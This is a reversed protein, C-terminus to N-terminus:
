SYEITFTISSGDLLGNQSVFYFAEPDEPPFITIVTDILVNFENAPDKRLISLDEGLSSPTFSDPFFSNNFQTLSINSTSSGGKIQWNTYGRSIPFFSSPLMISRPSIPGNLTIQAEPPLPIPPAAPTPSPPMNPTVSPTITPTISPTVSPTIQAGELTKSASEFNEYPTINLASASPSNQLAEMQAVMWEFKSQFGIINNEGIRAPDFDNASRMFDSVTAKLLKRAASDPKSEIIIIDEPNFNQGSPLEDPRKTPM